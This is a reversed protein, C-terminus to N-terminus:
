PSLFSEWFPCSIRVGERPGNRSPWSFNEYGSLWLLIEFRIIVSSNEKYIRLIFTVLLKGEYLFNWVYVGKQKLNLNVLSPKAPGFLKRPKRPGKPIAIQGFFRSWEQSATLSCAFWKWSCFLTWILSRWIPSRTRSQTRTRNEFKLDTVNGSGENKM